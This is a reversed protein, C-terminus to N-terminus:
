CFFGGSFVVVVVVIVIVVVVIEGPLLDGLPLPPSPPLKQSLSLALNEEVDAKGGKGGGGAGDDCRNM